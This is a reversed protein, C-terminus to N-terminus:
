RMRKRSADCVPKVKQYEDQFGDIPFVVTETGIGTGSRIVFREKAGAIESIIRDIQEPDNVFQGLVDLSWVNNKDARFFIPITKYHSSSPVVLNEYASDYNWRIYENIHNGSGHLYAQKEDTIPDLWIESTWTKASAPGALLSIAAITTMLKKM